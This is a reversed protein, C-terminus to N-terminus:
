PMGVTGVTSQARNYAINDFDKIIYETYTSDISAKGVAAPTYSTGIFSDRAISAGVAWSDLQIKFIKQKYDEDFAEIQRRHLHKKQIETETQAAVLAAQAEIRETNQKESSTIQATNMKEQSVIRNADLKERSTIENASLNERSTIDKTQMLEQSVIGNAHLKEQSVIQNGALKENSIIQNDTLKENSTIQADSIKEQSERQETAQRESSENRERAIQLELEMRKNELALQLKAQMRAIEFQIFSQSFMQLTGLYMQLHSNAYDEQKIRNSLFQADLHKNATEMLQDLIGEGEVSWGVEGQVLEPNITIDKFLEKFSTPPKNPDNPDGELDVEAPTFTYKYKYEPYTVPTPWTQLLPM